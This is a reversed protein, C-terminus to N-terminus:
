VYSPVKKKQSTLRLTGAGIKTIKINQLVAPCPHLIHLLFPHPPDRVAAQHWAAPAEGFRGEYKKHKTPCSPLPPSYAASVPSSSRECSGSAM